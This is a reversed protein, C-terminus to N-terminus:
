SAVALLVLYMGALAVACFAWVSVILRTSM